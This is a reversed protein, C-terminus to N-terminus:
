IIMVLITMNGNNSSVHLAIVDANRKDRVVLVVEVICRVDHTNCAPGRPSPLTCTWVGTSLSLYKSTGPFKM